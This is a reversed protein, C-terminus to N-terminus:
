RGDPYNTTGKRLVIEEQVRKVARFTNDDGYQTILKEVAKKATPASDWDDWPGGIFKKQIVYEAKSRLIKQTPKVKKKTM